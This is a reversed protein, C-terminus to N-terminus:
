WEWHSDVANPEIFNDTKVFVANNHFYAMPKDDVTLTPAWFAMHSYHFELTSQTAMLAEVKEKFLLYQNAKTAIQVLEAQRKKPLSACILQYSKNILANITETSFENPFDIKSWHASAIESPMINSNQLYLDAITEPDHKFYIMVVENDRTCINAFRKPTKGVAQQVGIEYFDVDNEIDPMAKKFNIIVAGPLNLCTQLFTKLEKM